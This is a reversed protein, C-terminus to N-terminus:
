YKVFLLILLIKEHPAGYGAAKKSENIALGASVGATPEGPVAQINSLPFSIATTRHAASIYSSIPGTM